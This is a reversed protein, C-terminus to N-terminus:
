RWRELWRGDGRRTSRVQRHPDRWARQLGGPVGRNRDCSGGEVAPPIASKSLPIDGGVANDIEVAVGEFSRMEDQCFCEFAGIKM